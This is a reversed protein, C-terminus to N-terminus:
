DALAEVVVDCEAAIQQGVEPAAPKASTLKAYQKVTVGRQTLRKELQSLFVDGKRKTIDLLGVTLGELSDPLSARPRGVPALESTPDMLVRPESM